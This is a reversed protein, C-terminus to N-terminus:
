ALDAAVVPSLVAAVTPGGPLAERASSSSRRQGSGRATPALRERLWLGPMETLWSMVAGTIVALLLCTGLKAVWLESVSLHSALRSVYQAAVDQALDRHWLYTSYSYLGIWAIVSGAPGGVTRGMIGAGPTIYRFGVLIAGYGVYLGCYGVTPMFLRVHEAMLITGIVVFTGGAILAATHRSARDAFAPTFEHLYALLVGFMLADLRLHTEGAM